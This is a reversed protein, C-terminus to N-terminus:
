NENNCPHMPAAAAIATVRIYEYINLCTYKLTDFIKIITETFLNINNNTNDSNKPTQNQNQNQISYSTEHTPRPYLLPQSSCDFSYSCDM